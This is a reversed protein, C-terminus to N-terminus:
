TERAKVAAGVMAALIEVEREASLPLASQGPALPSPGRPASTVAPIDILLRPTSRFPHRRFVPREEPHGRGKARRLMVPQGHDLRQLGCAISMM